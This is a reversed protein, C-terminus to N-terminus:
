MRGDKADDLVANSKVLHDAGGCASQIRQCDERTGALTFKAHGFRRLSRRRRPSATAGFV